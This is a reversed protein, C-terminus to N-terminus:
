QDNPQPIERSRKYGSLATRLAVVMSAISTEKIPLDLDLGLHLRLLAIDEYDWQFRELFNAVITGLSDFGVPGTEPFSRRTHLRLPLLEEAVSAAAELERCYGAHARIANQASGVIGSDHNDTCPNCEPSGVNFRRHLRRHDRLSKVWETRLVAVRAKEESYWDRLKKEFGGHQYSAKM